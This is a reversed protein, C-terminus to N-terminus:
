RASARVRVTRGRTARLGRRRRARESAAPRPGRTRRPHREGSPQTALRCRTAPRLRGGRHDPERRPGGWPRTGFPPSRGAAPARTCATGPARQGAARLAPRSRGGLNGPRRRPAPRRRAEGNPDVQTCTARPNAWTLACCSGLQYWEQHAFTLHCRNSIRGGSVRGRRPRGRCPGFPSDLVRHHPVEEIPEGHARACQDRRRLPSGVHFRRDPPPGASAASRGVALDKPPQSGLLWWLRGRSRQTSAVRSAFPCRHRARSDVIPAAVSIAAVWGDQDCSAAM